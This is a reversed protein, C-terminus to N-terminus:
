AGSAAAFGHGFSCDNGYGHARNEQHDEDQQQQRAVPSLCTGDRSRGRRRQRLREGQLWNGPLRPNCDHRLPGLCAGDGSHAPADGRALCARRALVEVTPEQSPEISRGLAPTPSAKASETRVAIRPEGTVPMRSRSQPLTSSTSGAIPSEETRNRPLLLLVLIILLIAGVAIPVVVRRTM